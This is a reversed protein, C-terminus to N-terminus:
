ATERSSGPLPSQWARFKQKMIWLFYQADVGDRTSADRMLDRVIGLADAARLGLRRTFV